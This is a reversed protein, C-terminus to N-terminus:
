DQTPHFGFRDRYFSRMVSVDDCNLIITSFTPASTSSSQRSGDDGTELLSILNGEPDRAHIVKGFKQHRVDDIFEVGRGRLEAVDSVINSSEFCLEFERKQSPQIALLALSAGNTGFQVFFPSESAIPLGIGDRYFVKMQEVDTTFAMCYLLRNVTVEEHSSSM